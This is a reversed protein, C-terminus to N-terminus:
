KIAPKLGPTEVRLSRVYDDWPKGEIVESTPRRITIRYWNPERPIDYIVIHEKGDRRTTRSVWVTQGDFQQSDFRNNRLEGETPAQGLKVVSFEGNRGEAKHPLLFISAGGGGKDDNSFGFSHEWEPPAIISFGDPHKVRNAEDPRGVVPQAAMFGLTAVLGAAIIAIM